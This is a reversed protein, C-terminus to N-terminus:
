GQTSPTCWAPITGMGLAVLAAIGFIIRQTNHLSQGQAISKMVGEIHDLQATIMEKARQDEESTGRLSNLAHTLEARKLRPKYTSTGLASYKHQSHAWLAAFVASATLSTARAWSNTLSASIGSKPTNKSPLVIHPISLLSATALFVIRVNM